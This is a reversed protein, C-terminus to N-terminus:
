PTASAPAQRPRESRILEKSCTTPSLRAWGRVQYQVWAAGVRAGMPEGAKLPEQSDIAVLCTPTLASVLLTRQSGTM